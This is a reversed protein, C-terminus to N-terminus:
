IDKDYMSKEKSKLSKEQLISLAMSPKFTKFQYSLLSVFRRRFDTFFIMNYKIACIVITTQFDLKLLM